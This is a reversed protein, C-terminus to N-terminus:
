NSKENVYLLIGYKFEILNQGEANIDRSPAVEISIPRFLYPLSKIKSLEPLLEELSNGRLSIIVPLGMNGTKDKVPLQSAFEWEFVKSSTKLKDLEGAFESVEQGNIFLADLEKAKSSGEGIEKANVPAGTQSQLLENRLEKLETGKGPLKILLVILFIVSLLNMVGLILDKTSFNKVSPLKEANRPNGEAEAVPEKNEENKEPEKKKEVIKNNKDIHIEEAHKLSSGADGKPTSEERVATKNEPLKKSQKMEEEYYPLEKMETLYKETNVKSM